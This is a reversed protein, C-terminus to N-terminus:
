NWPMANSTVVLYIMLAALAFIAIRTFIDVQKYTFPLKDYLKEKLYKDEKKTDEKKEYETNTNEVNEIDLENDLKENKDM